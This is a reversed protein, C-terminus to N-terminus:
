GKIKMELAKEIMIEVVQETTNILNLKKPVPAQIWQKIATDFGKDIKRIITVNFNELAATNCLQEYQGRIPVCMLKKELYLAEAPTEFGGGTIIGTCNILSENFASNDIPIFEINEKKKIEKVSKSFVQFRLDILNSVSKEITEDSYHPLYVCIFNNDKPTAKLIDEKLVPSFIFDDYHEFHLGVYSSAKAYNSLIFEGPISKNRPRPTKKSQFSAQHGFGISKVKKLKCAISSISEFDNIIIDYNEVPLDKAENIIRKLNFETWIKIYDLKGTKSYFLSIGKSRFKVPLDVRMNSNGGSLFVDVMGYKKIFPILEKARSIHGNGTAQVAYLIKLSM